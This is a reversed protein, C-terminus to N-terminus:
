ETLDQPIWKLLIDADLKISNPARERVMISHLEKAANRVKENESKLIKQLCGNVEAYDDNEFSRLLLLRLLLLATDRDLRDTLGFLDSFPIMNLCEVRLLKRIAITSGDGGSSSSLSRLCVERFFKADSRSVIDIAAGNFGLQLSKVFFGVDQESYDPIVSIYGGHFWVPLPESLHRENEARIIRLWGQRDAEHDVVSLAALSWERLSPFGSLSEDKAINRLESALEPTNIRSKAIAEAINVRTSSSIISAGVISTHFNDEDWHKKLYPIIFESDSKSNGALVVAIWATDGSQVLKNLVHRRNVETMRTSVFIMVPFFTNADQSSLVEFSSEVLLKQEIEFQEALAFLSPVTWHESNQTSFHIMKLFSSAFQERDKFLLLYTNALSEWKDFMDGIEQARGLELAADRFERVKTLM